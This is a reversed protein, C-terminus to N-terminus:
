SNSAPVLLTQRIYDLSRAKMAAAPGETISRFRRDAAVETPTDAGIRLPRVHDAFDVVAQHARYASAPVKILDPAKEYLGMILDRTDERAQKGRKGLEDDGPMTVVYETFEAMWKPKVPTEILQRMLEADAKATLEALGLTKQADAIKAQMDGTHRIAVLMGSKAAAANAMDLMNNCDVRNRWLGAHMAGTGDHTWDGFLWCEQRSPDRKVKLLDGFVKSLDISAFGRAGKAGLLGASGFGAKANREGAVTIIAELTSLADEDTLKEYDPSVYGMPSDDGKRLTARKAPDEVWRGGIRVAVPVLIIPRSFAPVVKVVQKATKAGNTVVGKHHWAPKGDYWAQDTGDIRAINDAV